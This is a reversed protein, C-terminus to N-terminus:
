DSSTLREIARIDVFQSGHARFQALDLYADIVSNGIVYINSDSDSLHIMSIDGIKKIM